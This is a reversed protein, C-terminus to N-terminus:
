GAALRARITRLPGIPFPFEMRRPGAVAPLLVGLADDLCSAILTVAAAEDSMRAEAWGTGPLRYGFEVGNIMADSPHRRQGSSRGGNGASSGILSAARSRLRQESRLRQDRDSVPHGFRRAERIAVTVLPDLSGRPEASFQWRRLRGDISAVVQGTGALKATRHPRAKIPAPASRLSPTVVVALQIM